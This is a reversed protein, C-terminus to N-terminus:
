HWQLTRHIRKHTHTQKANSDFGLFQTIVNGTWSKFGFWFPFHWAHFIIVHYAQFAITTSKKEEKKTILSNHNSLIENNRNPPKDHWEDTTSKLKPNKHDLFKFPHQCYNETTSSNCHFFEKFHFNFIFYECQVFSLFFSSHMFSDFKRGWFFNKKGNDRCIQVCTLCMKDNPISFIWM